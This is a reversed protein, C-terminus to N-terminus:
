GTSRRRLARSAFKRGRGQPTRRAPLRSLLRTSSSSVLTSALRGWNSLSTFIIKSAEYIGEDFCRDGVSQLNIGPTSVIFEELQGLQGIKAYSYALETDVSAEKVKARVMKLFKVLDEYNESKKAEAIVADRNTEDDARIYSTIAEKVDGGQLQAKALESWCEKEEVKTAYEHAREISNLNELLVKIAPVHLDFKKYIFYAEEFLESGVAIEGVAPGDFHDLRNIYDMVRTGDAKIATLILLNQLNPNGSFASNQLVIKELLEILENPLDAQMFAKVTVSVQEPNKSEPLATSVVQDILQRRYENEPDLVKAWLDADMREVVYRAQLKFLSNRNTVDVLEADCQGRKYAVCALNPDRGM